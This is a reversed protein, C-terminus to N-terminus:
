EHPEEKILAAALRNVIDEDEAEVMGNDIYVDLLHRVDAARIGLLALVEVRHEVLTALIADAATLHEDFTIDSDIGGVDFPTQAIAERLPDGMAGGGKHAGGPLPRRVIAVVARHLTPWHAALQSQAQRHTAPSPGEIVWADRVANLLVNAEDLQSRLSAAEDSQVIADILSLPSQTNMIEPTTM